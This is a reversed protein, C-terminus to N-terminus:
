YYHLGFVVCIIDNVSDDVLSRYFCNLKNVRHIDQVYIEIQGSFSTARVCVCVFLHCRLRASHTLNPQQQQHTQSAIARSIHSVHSFYACKCVCMCACQMLDALTRHVCVYVHHAQTYACKRSHILCFFLCGSQLALLPTSMHAHIQTHTRSRTRDIPASYVALCSSRRFRQFDYGIGQFTLHLPVATKELTAISGLCVSVATLANNISDCEAMFQISHFYSSFMRAFLSFRLQLWNPTGNRQATQSSSMLADLVSVLAGFHAIDILRHLRRPM